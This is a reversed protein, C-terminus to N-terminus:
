AQWTAVGQRNTNGATQPSSDLHLFAAQYPPLTLTEGDLAASFGHDDLPRGTAPLRARQTEGTLNFVCLLREDRHQRIFGLLTEGVDILELDGDRLAPHRRRFSLLRRVANLTSGPDREQEEVALPLHRRDLPLWPETTSFGGFEASRWPMPTRAGDRGKFEPWLVKGYPDQIREFPVDAEPLGLEEGQYLCVSGRLAFLLALAVRPYADPDESGGWRSASRVVDHNSLAWCPWADGALKQFREIVERIYAASHPENLLDFTYAMHLKDGGETYEAMRELPTDDGIEGVTTTGPYEDMLARLERLFDLNEPRSIDYLHRQWTYPNSDPAGLTKPAGEPVPPNDRLATDHFYFNVTDLRFGDVGLDLWFRMNDLQAQRVEPNHFNLDPQSALFNHLYYQRRRPEFTWAPGGFISLWNNPPTGDPKPDAWVYWDARANDRDWRSERFWPHRDSSHSLVQDIIVKLGLRHAREVLDAFDDLTGFMPDVDRYDSVDYGFDKMPSTFFPSLWIGDVGLSAVYELKTTIGALDGIGNGSADMFSRPYIQYIVGGHWWFTNDQM